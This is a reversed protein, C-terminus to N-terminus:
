INSNKQKYVEKAVTIYKKVSNRMPTHYLIGYGIKWKESLPIRQIEEISDIFPNASILVEDSNMCQYVMEVQHDVDFSEHLYDPQNQFITKIENLYPEPMMLPLITTPFAKIQQLSLTAYSALPHDKRMVCQYYRDTLPIYEAHAYHNTGINFTEAVDQIDENVRWEGSHNPNVIRKLQIHPYKKHFALNVPDLLAQHENNGIRIYPAQELAICDEIIQQKRKLLEKAGLYFVEGQKTLTVGNHKRKFLKFGIEDELTNIQKLMAQKSIFMDKESASFSGSDSISIFTKLQEDNM